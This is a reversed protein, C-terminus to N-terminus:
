TSRAWISFPAPHHPSWPATGPLVPLVSLVGIGSARMWM